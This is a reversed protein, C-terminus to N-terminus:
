RSPARKRSRAAVLVDAVKQQSARPGLVGKVWTGIAASTEDSSAVIFPIASDQKSPSGHWSRYPEAFYYREEPKDRDGNHAILLVDGAREGYVGVGLDRLRADLAVYTPHPHDNLYADVPITKGGGVYVEFPLDVQPQPRPRRTLILDLTGRMAPVISGDEDNKHFAEAVTLVDEEYRPPRTWDCADKESPCSSRDAVYVYAMAGGYALVASFNHDDAVKRKFPRVRFGVRRLLAPPDDEDDMSLAHAKDYVVETHGHDSTVVVYRGALANRKVLAGRLQQLLPEVVERLYSRQAKEPGEDAVHAYLDTGSIYVTLVDPVPGDGDLQKVVAHVVSEDLDAYLRRSDKDTALKKVSAELFGEAAKALVTRKTLLLKDAGRYFNHMAVWVLVNPDKERMREYASPSASLDNLYGETYIEITPNVDNFTVPAPCAFTRKERIFYENGTVGHEAPPVGTLTTVWAAMTSSPLTSLMTEELHAHPLKGGEAGGLLAAFNPLEGKRLMDYLLERGIGDFALFLIPPKDASSSPAGEERKRLDREDGAAVLKAAQHACGFHALAFALVCAFAMANAHAASLVGRKM